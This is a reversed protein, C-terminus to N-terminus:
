IVQQLSVTADHKCLLHLNRRARFAELFTWARTNWDSVLVIALLKEYVLTTMSSVDVEM